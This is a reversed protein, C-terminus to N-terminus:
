ASLLDRYRACGSKDRLRERIRSVAVSVGAETLGIERGIRSMSWPDVDIMRLLIWRERATLGRLWLQVNEDSEMRSGIEPAGDLFLNRLTLKGDGGPPSTDASVVDPRDAFGIELDAIVENCGNGWLRTLTRRRIEVLIVSGDPLAIPGEPFQLGEGLIELGAVM